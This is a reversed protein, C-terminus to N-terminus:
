RAARISVILAADSKPDLRPLAAAYVSLAERRLAPNNTLVATRELLAGFDVRLLAIRHSEDIPSLAAFYERDATVAEQATTADVPRLSSIQNLADVLHSQSEKWDDLYHQKSIATLENRFLVVSERLADIAPQTDHKDTLAFGLQLLNIALLHKVAAYAKAKPLFELETLAARRETVAVRFQSEDRDNLATLVLGSALDSHLSARLGHDDAHSESLAARILIMGKQASEIDNFVIAHRLLHESWASEVPVHLSMAHFKVSLTGFLVNSRHEYESNHELDALKALIEAQYYMVLPSANRAPYAAAAQAFADLAAHLQVAQTNTSASLFGVIGIQEKLSAYMEPSQTASLRSVAQEDFVLTENIRNPDYKQTSEHLAHASLYLAVRGNLDPDRVDASGTLASRYINRARELMNSDRSREFLLIDTYAIQIKTYALFSADTAAFSRQVQQTFIEVADNLLRTNDDLVGHNRKTRALGSFSYEMLQTERLGKATTALESFANEAAIIDVHLKTRGAIFFLMNAVRYQLMLWHRSSHSGSDIEQAAHFAAISKRATEVTDDISNQTVLCSGLLEQLRSWQDPNKQRDTASLASESLREAEVVDRVNSNKQARRNLADALDSKTQLVIALPTQANMKAIAKRYSDISEDLYPFGPNKEALGLEILGHGRDFTPDSPASPPAEFVTQTDHFSLVDPTVTLPAVSMVGASVTLPSIFTFLGAIILVGRAARQPIQM